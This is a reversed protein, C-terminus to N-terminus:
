WLFQKKVSTVNTILVELLFPLNSDWPQFPGVLDDVGVARRGSNSGVISSFIQSCRM